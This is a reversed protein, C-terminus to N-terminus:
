SEPEAGPERSPPVEESPPGHRQALLQPAEEILDILAERDRQAQLFDTIDQLSIRWLPEQGRGGREPVTDLQLWRAQQRVQLVCEGRVSERLSEAWHARWAGRSAEAVYGEVPQGILDHPEVGALMRSGRRSADAVRGSRAVSLFGIPAREVVDRYMAQWHAAERQSRQLDEEQIALEVQLLLLEEERKQPDAPTLRSFEPAAAGEGLASVRQRARERLARARAPDRHMGLPDRQDM